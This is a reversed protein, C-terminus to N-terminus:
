THKNKYPNWNEICDDVCAAATIAGSDATGALEFHLLKLLMICTEDTTQAVGCISTTLCIESCGADTGVMAGQVEDSVVAACTEVCKLTCFWGPHRHGERCDHCCDGFCGCLGTFGAVQHKQGSVSLMILMCYCYLAAAATRKGEM